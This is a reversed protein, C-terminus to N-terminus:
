PFGKGRIAFGAHSHIDRFLGGAFGSKLKGGFKERSAHQGLQEFLNGIRDKGLSEAYWGNVLQAPYDREEEGPKDECGGLGGIRGSHLCRGLM